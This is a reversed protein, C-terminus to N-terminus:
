PRNVFIRLGGIVGNEYDGGDEIAMENVGGGYFSSVLTTNVPHSIDISASHPIM